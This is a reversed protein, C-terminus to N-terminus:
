QLSVTFPKFRIKLYSDILDQCGAVDAGETDGNVILSHIFACNNVAVFDEAHDEDVYPIMSWEQVEEIGTITKNAPSTYIDVTDRITAVSPSQGATETFTVNVIARIHHDDHDISVSGTVLPGNGGFESDTGEQLVPCFKVYESGMDPQVEVLEALVSCQRVSYESHTVFSVVSNDSLKNVTFAIPAGPSTPSYQAGSNILDNLNGTTLGMTAGSADGGVVFANISTEELSNFASHDFNVSAGFGWGSWSADIAAQVESVSSSSEITIYVMRGYTISSVYVPCYSQMQEYSPLSGFWDDPEALMDMDVTYYKQILRLMFRSRQQLSNWDYSGSINAGWGSVSAGISGTVEQQARVEKREYLIYAPTGNPVANQRLANHGENYASLSPQPMTYTSAAQGTNLSISMTVPNRNDYIVPTWAGTGIQDGRLFSGIWTISSPSFLSVENFGPGYVMPQVQCTWTQAGSAVEETYENGNPQPENIPAPMQICGGQTALAANFEDRLSDNIYELVLTTDPTGPEPLIDKKCSFILITGISGFALLKGYNM